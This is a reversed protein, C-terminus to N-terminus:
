PPFESTYVNRKQGHRSMKIAANVITATNMTCVILLFITRRVATVKNQANNSNRIIRSDIMSQKVPCENSRDNMSQMSANEPATIPTKGHVVVNIRSM